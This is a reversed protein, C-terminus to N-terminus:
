YDIDTTPATIDITLPVLFIGLEVGTLEEILYHYQSHLGPRLTVLFQLFVWLPASLLGSTM